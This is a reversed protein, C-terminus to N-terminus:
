VGQDGNDKHPHEKALHSRLRCPLMYGKECYKCMHSYDKLHIAKVHLRLHGSDTCRYKCLHCSYPKEKTHIRVHRILNGQQVFAKGCVGCVFPREGTHTREHLVVATTNESFYPCYSCEHRGGTQHRRTRHEELVAKSTFVAICYGCPFTELAPGESPM